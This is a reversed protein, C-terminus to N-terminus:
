WSRGRHGATSGGARPGARRTRRLQAVNRGFDGGTRVASEPGVGSNAGARTRRRGTSLFGTARGVVSEETELVASPSTTMAVLRDEFRGLLHEADARSVAAGSYECGIEIQEGRLQVFFTLDNVATGSELIRHDVTEGALQAPALDEVALMIRSTPPTAGRERAARAVAAFPVARYRLADALTASVTQALQANSQNAGVDILLPLPNLFFGVTAALAPHDRVSATVSIEFTTHDHYPEVAAALAALATAFKTTGPGDALASSSVASVRHVYGDPESGAPRYMLEGVMTEPDVPWASAADPTRARQWAGHEAYTAELEPLPEGSYALDIQQWVIDLSGADSVIHHTRLLVASEGDADSRLHHVTILPGRMLDFPQENIRKALLDVSASPSAQVGIRLAQDVDLAERGAGYSTHLVPQHAVVARVAEDFRERDYTRAASVPSRRQVASRHPRKRWDFLM